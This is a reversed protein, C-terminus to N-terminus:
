KSLQLQLRLLLTTLVHAFVLFHYSLHFFIRVTFNKREFSSVFSFQLVLFNSQM